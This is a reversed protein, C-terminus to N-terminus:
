DGDDGGGFRIEDAEESTLRRFEYPPNNRDRGVVHHLLYSGESGPKEGGIPGRTSDTPEATSTKADTLNHFVQWPVSKYEYMAGNPWTLYLTETDLEYDAKSVYNSELDHHLRIKPMKSDRM